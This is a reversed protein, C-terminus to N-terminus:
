EQWEVLQLNEVHEGKKAKECEGRRRGRGVGESKTHGERGLAKKTWISKQAHGEGEHPPVLASRMFYYELIEAEAEAEAEKKLNNNKSIIYQENTKVSVHYSKSASRTAQREVM